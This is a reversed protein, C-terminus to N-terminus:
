DNQTVGKAKVCIEFADIMGKFYNNESSLNDTLMKEEKLENELRDCRKNLAEVYKKLEKNEAELASINNIQNSM